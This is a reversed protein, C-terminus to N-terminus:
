KGGGARVDSVMQHYLALLVPSPTHRPVVGRGLVRYLPAYTLGPSLDECTHGLARYASILDHNWCGDSNPRYPAVSGFKAELHLVHGGSVRMLEGLVGALDEPRVHVLVSATFVMDFARDEYPMRGTPAGLTVHEEMWGAEAWRRMGEVMTPSQDFGYAEIGPIQRLYRLHRGPGCGFELVRAPASAAAYECLMFESVHYKPGERKVREYREVEAAGNKQWWLYNAATQESVAAESM